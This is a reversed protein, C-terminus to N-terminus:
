REDASLQHVHGRVGYACEGGYKWRVVGVEWTRKGVKRCDRQKGGGERRLRAM